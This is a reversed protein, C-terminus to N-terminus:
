LGNIENKEFYQMVGAVQESRSVVFFLGSFVLRGTSAICECAETCSCTIMAEM